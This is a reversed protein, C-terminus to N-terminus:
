FEGLVISNVLNRVIYFVIISLNSSNENYLLLVSLIVLIRMISYVVNKLDSLVKESASINLESQSSNHM